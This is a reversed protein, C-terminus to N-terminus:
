ACRALRLRIGNTWVGLFPPSVSAFSRRRFIDLRGRFLSYRRREPHVFYWWVATVFPDSGPYEVALSTDTGGCGYAGSDGSSVFFSIGQVAGQKFTADDSQMKVMGYNTECNGWSHTPPSQWNNTVIQNFEIQFNVNTASSTSADGEITYVLLNAGPAQAGAQQIDLTTEIRPLTSGGNTRNCNDHHLRHARLGQRARRPWPCHESLDNERDDNPSKKGAM